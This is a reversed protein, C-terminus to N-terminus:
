QLVQMVRQAVKHAGQHLALVVTLHVWGLHVVGGGQLAVLGVQLHVGGHGPDLDDVGVAIEWLSLSNKKYNKKKKKTKKKKKKKKKEMSNNKDGDDESYNKMQERKRNEFEKNFEEGNFQEEESEEFEEEM